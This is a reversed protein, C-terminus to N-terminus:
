SLAESRGEVGTIGVLSGGVGAALYKNIWLSRIYTLLGMGWVWVRNVAGGQVWDPDKQTFRGAKPDYALAGTTTYNLRRTGNGVTLRM